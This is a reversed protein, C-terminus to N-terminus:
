IIKAGRACYIKKWGILKQTAKQHTYVVRAFVDQGGLVLIRRAPKKYGTWMKTLVFM